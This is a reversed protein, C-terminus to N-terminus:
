LLLEPKRLTLEICGDQEPVNIRPTLREGDGFLHIELHLVGRTFTPLILATTADQPCDIWVGVAPDQTDLPYEIHHVQRTPLVRDNLFDALNENHDTM